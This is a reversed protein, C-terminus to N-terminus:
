GMPMSARERQLARMEDAIRMLRVGKIVRRAGPFLRNEEKDMHASIVLFLQNLRQDFLATDAPIETMEDLLEKMQGHEKYSDPILPALADHEACAPYFIEEELSAHAELDRKIKMFIERRQQKDRTVKCQALLVEVEMHQKTLTEPANLKMRFLLKAMLPVRRLMRQLMGALGALSM